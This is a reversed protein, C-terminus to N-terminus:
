TQSNPYLSTPCTVRGSRLREDLTNSGRLITLRALTLHFPPDNPRPAVRPIESAKPVISSDKLTPPRAYPRSEISSNSSPERPRKRREHPDRRPPPLIPSDNSVGIGGVQKLERPEVAAVISILLRNLLCEKAHANGLGEFHLHPVPLIVFDEPEAFVAQINSPSLM